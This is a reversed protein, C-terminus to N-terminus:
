LHRFAHVYAISELRAPGGANRRCVGMLIRYSNSGPLGVSASPGLRCPIRPFEAGRLRSPAAGGANRAIFRALIRYSHPRGFHRRSAPRHPSPPRLQVLHRKGSEAGDQRSDPRLNRLAPSPHLTPSLLRRCARAARLASPKGSAGAVGACPRAIGRRSFGLDNRKGM